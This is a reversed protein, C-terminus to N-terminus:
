WIILKYSTVKFVFKDGLSSFFLVFNKWANQKFNKNQTTMANESNGSIDTTFILISWSIISWMPSLNCMSPPSFEWINEM